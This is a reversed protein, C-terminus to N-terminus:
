FINLSDTVLVLKKFRSRDFDIRSAKVSIPFYLETSSIMKIKNQNGISFDLKGDALTNLTTVLNSNVTFDTDINVVLSKAFLTGTILLLHNRNANRLLSPNPHIFDARYLYEELSGIAYEKTVSNEYSISVSKGTKIQSAIDFNGLGLTQLIEQLLTLGINFGYDDKKTANVSLAPNEIESLVVESKFAHGIHAYYLEPDEFPKKLWLQLPKHNRVTGEILDYGQESLFPTLKM